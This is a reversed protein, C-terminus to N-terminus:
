VRRGAIKATIVCYHVQKTEIGLRADLLSGMTYTLIKYLNASAPWTRTTVVQFIM